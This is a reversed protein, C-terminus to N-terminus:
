KMETLNRGCKYCFTAATQKTIKYLLIQDVTQMSWFCGWTNRSRKQQYVQSLGEREVPSAWVQIQAGEGPEPEPLRRIAPINWCKTIVQFVYNGLGRQCGKRWNRPCKLCSEMVPFSCIPHIFVIRCATSRSPNGWHDKWSSASCGSLMWEWGLETAELAASPKGLCRFDTSGGQISYAELQPFEKTKRCHLESGLKM